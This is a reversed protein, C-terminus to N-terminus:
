VRQYRERGRMFCKLKEMTQVSISHEMKCADEEATQADVHLVDTLFRRLLLHKEEVDQAMAWGAATLRLLSYREQEIYGAQKLVGIARNVSARSVGMREAIDISRIGAGQEQTLALITELYDQSSASIHSM